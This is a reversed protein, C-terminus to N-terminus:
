SEVRRAVPWTNSHRDTYIARNLSQIVGWQVQYASVFSDPEYLEPPMREIHKRVTSGGPHDFDENMLYEVSFAIIRSGSVAQTDNWSKIELVGFSCGPQTHPEVLTPQQATQSQRTTWNFVDTIDAEYETSFIVVSEGSPNVWEISDDYYSGAAVDVARSVTMSLPSGSGYQAGGWAVPMRIYPVVAYMHWQVPKNTNWILSSCDVGFDTTALCGAPLTPYAM